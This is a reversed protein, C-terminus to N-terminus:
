RGNVVAVCLWSTIARPVFFSTSPRRFTMAQSTGHRPPHPPNLAHYLAFRICLCLIFRLM